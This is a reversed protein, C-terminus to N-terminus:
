RVAVRKKYIYYEIEGQTVKDILYFNYSGDKLSRLFDDWEEKKGLRKIRIEFGKLENFYDSSSANIYKVVEFWNAPNGPLTRNIVFDVSDLRGSLYFLEM